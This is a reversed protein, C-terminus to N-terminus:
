LMPSATDANTLGGDVGGAKPRCCRFVGLVAALFSVSSPFGKGDASGDTWM